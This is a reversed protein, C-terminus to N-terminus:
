PVGAHCEATSNFWSSAIMIYASDGMLWTLSEVQVAIRMSLRVCACARMCVCVSYSTCHICICFYPCQVFICGEARLLRFIDFCVIAHIFIWAQYSFLTLCWWTWHLKWWYAEDCWLAKEMGGM